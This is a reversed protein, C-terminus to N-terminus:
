DNADPTPRGVEYFKVFLKLVMHNRPLLIGGEETVSFALVSFRLNHFGFCLENAADIRLVKLSVAQFSNGFLPCLIANEGRASFGM